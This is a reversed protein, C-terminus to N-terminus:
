DDAVAITKASSRLHGDIRDKAVDVDVDVGVSRASEMM